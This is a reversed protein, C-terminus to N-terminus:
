CIPSHSHSTYKSVSRDETLYGILVDSFYILLYCCGLQQQLKAYEVCKFLVLYFLRRRRHSSCAICLPASITQNPYLPLRFFPLLFLLFECTKKDPTKWRGRHLQGCHTTTRKTQNSPQQEKQKTPRNDLFSKGYVRRRFVQRLGCSVVTSSQTKCAGADRVSHIYVCGQNPEYEITKHRRM